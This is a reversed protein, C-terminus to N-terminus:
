WERTENFERKASAAAELDVGLLTALDCVNWIVDYMEAGVQERVTELSREPVSGATTLASVSEALEGLEAVLSLFREEPSKTPWGHRRRLREADDAIDRLTLMRSLILQTEIGSRRSEAPM